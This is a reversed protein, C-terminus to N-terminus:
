KRRKQHEKKIKNREKRRLTALHEARNERSVPMLTTAEAKTLPTTYGARGADEDTEFTAIAHTQPHM